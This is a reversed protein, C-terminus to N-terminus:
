EKANAKAAAAEEKKQQDFKKKFAAALESDTPKVKGRIYWRYAMEDTMEVKEGIKWGSLRDDDNKLVEVETM